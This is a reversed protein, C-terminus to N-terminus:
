FPNNKGDFSYYSTWSGSARPDGEIVWNVILVGKGKNMEREYYELDYKDMLGNYLRIGDYAWLVTGLYPVRKAIPKASAIGATLWSVKDVTSPGTVKKSKDIYESQTNEAPIYTVDKISQTIPGASNTVKNVPITTGQQLWAEYASPSLGQEMRHFDAATGDYKFGLDAWVAANGSPDSFNVPNNSCYCFLNYSLLDNNAGMIADANLFRGWEPNYYRSQLYYLGTETDYYYGRYRIPNILVISSEDTIAKGASDTISVIDGWENYEYSGKLQGMSNYVGIIDGKLNFTFYYNAGNYQIGTVQGDANYFYFIDDDGRQEYVLQGGDYLYKTTVGNAATKSVRLGDSDYTYTSKKGGITASALERGNQWTYADDGVLVSNGINDYKIAKGNYSTLMDMWNSTSYGYSITSQLTGLTGVKYSYKKVSTINGGDDYTYVRTVNEPVSDVRVLESLSNYTYNLYDKGAKTIEIINGLKDYAFDYVEGDITEHRVQLTRNGNGSASLWYVYSMELLRDTSITQKNLRNLSDYAKTVTRGSPMTYKSLLNDEEYAYQHKVTRGNAYDVISTVNDKLDYGYETSYINRDVSDSQSTDITSMGLMRGSKDYDYYSLLHNTLDEQKTMAGSSDYAWKFKIADNYKLQAVLDMDNYVYSKTNGNGYTSTILRGDAPNYTNSVLNTSGVFVSSNNGYQDYNFTYNFGNQSITKIKNNSDYTYSNSATFSSSDLPNKVTTSVKTLLDNDPDLTYSTVNGAKDTYSKLVGKAEDYSSKDSYGNADTTATAFGKSDITSSTSIKMSSDSNRITTGVCLGDSNYTFDSIMGTQSISQTVNHKSDYDYKTKYGKADTQVYIDNTEKKTDPNTYDIDAKSAESDKVLNLNGNSDYSYTAVNQKVLQIDDFYATNAQKNYRLYVSIKVPTKGTSSGDSLDFAQAAYQWDSVSNNFDATLKWKSSGDSYTVLISIKFKKTDKADDPVANAKAWGSVIYTDAETGKISVDQILQKDLQPKGVMKFGYDGVRDADVTAIDSAELDEGHWSIPMDSSSLKEMSANELMNFTNMTSGTELQIADFWATGTSKRVALNIRTYTVDNPVTFTITLRRWGNNIATNTTGTIYDSYTSVDDGSTTFSYAGLMAGYKGSDTGTIGSTKVYASLTYTGGPVLESSSFDQYSRGRGDGTVSTVSMKLSKNGYYSQDTAFSTAFTCDDVWQVSTWSSSAEMDGNTVYNRTSRNLSLQSQLKNNSKTNTTSTTTYNYKAAGLSSNEVTDEKVSDTRGMDDFQYTTILDDDNGFVDDKGATKFVTENYKSYDMSMQQGASGSSGKEKVSIVRLGKSKSTYGFSLSQGGISTASLLEENDGYTYTSSSGDPYRVEMLLGDTFIFTTKRGAADTMYSLYNSGSTSETLTIVNGGGDTVKTIQNGSYTITMTNGNVDKMSSLNGSSNFTMVNDKKDKITYSSTNKVLTLGLGDEDTLSGDDNKIFYHETGDGDTYVYPYTTHASGSLGYDSSDRVTREINLRWGHGIFPQMDTFKYGAMYGNYVHQITVPMLNSGSTVDDHIMVLNGTYDNIYATGASGASVNHYTWYDELGKNNRYNISIHPYLGETSNYKDSWFRGYAGYTAWSSSENNARLMIGNNAVDGDYWDKVAKTINWSKWDASRTVYDYDQVTSNYSPQSGWTLTSPSWSGNVTYANIQLDDVGTAYFSQSYQCMNLKADVVMDGKNLTPLTFKVYTRASGYYYSDNGILLELEENRNATTHKQDVYTCSIASQDLETTIMPDITVPFALSNVIDTDAVVTLTYEKKSKTLEYKVANFNVGKADFMYPAPINYKLADTKPDYISISGDENTKAELNKLKLSFPFSYDGRPQKVLINEKINTGSLLYQLDIGQEIESYTIGADTKEIKFQELKSSNKNKEKVPVSANRVKEAKNLYDWAIAYNDDKIRVLAKQSTNKAFKIKFDNEKNELGSIDSSDEAEQSQLTNDIDKYVGDEYYHVNEDYIMAMFSHDSMLFTKSDLTRKSTDEGIIKLDESPASEDKLV